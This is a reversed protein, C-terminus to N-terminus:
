QYLPENLGQKKEKFTASVSVKIGNLCFKVRILDKNDPKEGEMAITNPALFEFIVKAGKKVSASDSGNNDYLVNGTVEVGGIYATPQSLKCDRKVLFEINYIKRPGQPAPKKRVIGQGRWHYTASTTSLYRSVSSNIKQGPSQFALASILLLGLVFTRLAM